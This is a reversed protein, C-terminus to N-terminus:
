ALDDVTATADVPQAAPEDTPEKHLNSMATNYFTEDLEIGLGTRKSNRAAVLTSGSGCCPDLVFDGPLTSCEILQRLLETPKEAAHTREARSVRSEDLVDVPSSILGRQGKTAWFLMEYTRRFGKGQWPAMGESMSKRWIIPTRFPVWGVRGAMEKLTHFLDIDCFLFLNAMPKAIRFGDLIIAQALARANEPTDEYNHHHVTRQRFGGTDAGIGFPPDSLILDAISSELRPLIELADGRRITISPLNKSVALRRRALTANISEEQQKLLLNYAETENRAKAITPNNLNEAIATARSIKTSLYDVNTNDVVGEEILKTATSAFSVKTASEEQRLRHIEALAEVEDQWPLQERVKNEDFEVQKLDARSLNDHLTVVPILGAPVYEGNHMFPVNAEHLKQMAKTRREGVILKWIPGEDGDVQKYTPAHLIGYKRISEVLDALPQSEIKKRQRPGITIQDIPILQTM